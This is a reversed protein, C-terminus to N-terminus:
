CEIQTKVAIGVAPQNGFKAPRTCHQGIRRAPASEIEIANRAGPRCITEHESSPGARSHQPKQKSTGARMEWQRDLYLGDYFHQAMGPPTFLLITAAICCFRRWFAAPEIRNAQDFALWETKASFMCATEANVKIGYKLGL